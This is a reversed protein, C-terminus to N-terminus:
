DRNSCRLFACLLMSATSIFPFQRADVSVFTAFICLIDSTYLHYEKAFHLTYNVYKKWLPRACLIRPSTITDSDLLFPHLFRKHLKVTKVSVKSIQCDNGMSSKVWAREALKATDLSCLLVAAGWGRSAWYLHLYLTSSCLSRRRRKRSRCFFHSHFRIKM